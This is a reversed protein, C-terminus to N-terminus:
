SRKKRNNAKAKKILHEILLVLLFVVGFIGIYMLGNILNEQPTLNYDVFTM